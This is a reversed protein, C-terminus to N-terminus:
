IQGYRRRIHQYLPRRSNIGVTDLKTSVNISKASYHHTQIRQSDPRLQIVVVTVCYSINGYKFRIVQAKAM